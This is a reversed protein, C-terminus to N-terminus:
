WLCPPRDFWPFRGGPKTAGQAAADTVSTLWGNANYNYTTTHNLPDTQNVLNGMLDYDYSTQNLNARNHSERRGSTKKRNLYDYDQYQAHGLPHVIETMNGCPDYYFSYTHSASLPPFKEGNM